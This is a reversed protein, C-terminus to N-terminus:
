NETFEVRAISFESYPLLAINVASKFLRSAFM